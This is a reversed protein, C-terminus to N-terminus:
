PCITQKTTTAIVLLSDGTSTSATNVYLYYATTTTAGSYVKLCQMTATGTNSSTSTQTFQGSNTLTGTNTIGGSTTLLGANSISLQRSTGSFLGQLFSEQQYHTTGTSGLYPTTVNLLLVGLVIAVVALVGIIINKRM